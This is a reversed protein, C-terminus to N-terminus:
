NLLVKVHLSQDIVDGHSTTWKYSKMVEQDEFQLHFLYQFCTGKM